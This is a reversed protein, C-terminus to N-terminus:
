GRLIHSVHLLNNVHHKTWIVKQGKSKIRLLRSHKIFGGAAGGGIEELTILM